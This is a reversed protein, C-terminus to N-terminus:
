VPPGNAVKARKLPITRSTLPDVILDGLVIQVTTQSLEPILGIYNVRYHLITRVSWLAITLNAHLNSLGLNTLTSNSKVRVDDRFVLKLM